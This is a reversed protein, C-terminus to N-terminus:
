ILFTKGQRELTMSTPSLRWKRVQRTLRSSSGGKLPVMSFVAWYNRALLFRFTVVTLYARSLGASRVIM